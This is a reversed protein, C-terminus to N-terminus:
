VLVPASRRLDADEISGIEDEIRVKRRHAPGTADDILDTLADASYEIAYDVSKDTCSHDAAFARILDGIQDTLKRTREGIDALENHAEDLQACLRETDPM